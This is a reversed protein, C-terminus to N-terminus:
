WKLNPNNARLNILKQTLSQINLYHQNSQALLVELREIQKLQEKALTAIQRDMHEFTAILTEDKM